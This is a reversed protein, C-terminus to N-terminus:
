KLEEANIALYQIQDISFGESKFTSYPKSDDGESSAQDVKCAMTASDVTGGAEACANEDKMPIPMATIEKVMSNVFRVHVTDGPIITSWYDATDGEEVETILRYDKDYIYISDFPSDIQIFNFHLRIAQANEIKIDNRIDVLDQSFGRQSITKGSSIWNSSLVPNQGNGTLARFANIRGNSIAKGVLSPKVDATRQITEIVREPHRRYSKDYAMMLAAVGSVYPTAMSTGSMIAYPERGKPLLAKPFTSVIEVGPAFVDVTAHGYNSFDAPNDQNDTAGVTLVNGLPKHDKDFKNSAPYTKKIDINQGENGAAVVFLVGDKAAATIAETLLKSEGSGGWSNSMIDAKNLRAYEIGRAADVSSGGGEGLFRIAMIQVRWNIGAVGVNIDPVAAIQGACFTGHGGKDMPDPGGVRGYWLKKKDKSYFDFGYVDDVYGNGDDDVGPIGGNAPAEKSNVWMNDKLSPHTYDVGEDIVAVVIDKSGKSLTWAKLIDMDAGETGPIGFPPSQGVNNLGWQKFFLKNNPWDRRNRSAGLDVLLNPEVWEVKARVVKAIQEFSSSGEYKVHYITGSHFVPEYRAQIGEKKLLAQVTKLDGKFVFENDIATKKRLVPEAPDSKKTCSVFAVSLCVGILKMINNM